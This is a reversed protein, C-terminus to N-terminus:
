EDQLDKVKSITLAGFNSITIDLPVFEESSMDPNGVNAGFRLNHGDVRNFSLGILAGHKYYTDDVYPRFDTKSLTREFFVSKDSRIISVRIRNDYYKTNGDTALPLDKDAKSEIVVRYESGMWQVTKEKKADGIVKPKGQKAIVPKRVIIVNSQKKEKCGVSAMTALIAMVVTCIRFINKMFPLTNNFPHILKHYLKYIM